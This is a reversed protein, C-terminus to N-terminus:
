IDRDTRAERGGGGQLARDEGRQEIETAGGVLHRYGAPRRERLPGLVDIHADGRPDHVLRGRRQAPASMRQKEVTAGLGDLLNGEVERRRPQRQEHHIGM